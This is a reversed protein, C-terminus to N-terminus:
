DTAHAQGGCVRPVSGAVTEIRGDLVTVNAEVPTAAGQNLQDRPVRFRLPRKTDKTTSGPAHFAAEVAEGADAGTVTMEVGSSVCQRGHVRSEHYALNLKLAPKERCAAGSCDRLDDLLKALARRPGSYRPSRQLSRLENPDRELDYMERDGNPYEMYAYRDTRVGQYRPTDGNFCSEEVQCWNELEIARGPFLRRDGILQVLSRGDPPRTTAAGALELITPSLDINAALQHRVQGKPIGPGTIATPVKISPEYPYEKGIRIRHEGLLFGNDSTFIFITNDLEGTQRLTSVLRGVMDDVALLSGLRSRYRQRLVGRVRRDIPKLAQITTPKDSVDDENFAPNHPLKEHRFAGSDRPAPRPNPFTPTPFDDEGTNGRDFVEVHPALPAINLFFPQREPARVRILEAAKRAYVDTQYTAPDPIDYSGYTLDTGNENLTYGFMRYTSSDVSGEWSDWGPPIGTPDTRLGYGNLYKGIHATYYGSRQLAVPLTEAPDLAEIGGDPPSNRFVGNSHSYQGTLYSARSPCCVPNPTFFNSFSVGRDIILRRLKPMVRLTENTQDDTTLVVINPRDAPKSALETPAIPTPLGSGPGDGGWALTACALAAAAVVAVSTRKVGRKKRM